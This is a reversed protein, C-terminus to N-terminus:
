CTTGLGLTVLNDNSVVQVLETWDVEKYLIKQIDIRIIDEWLRKSNQWLTELYFASHMEQKQVYAVRVYGECEELTDHGPCTALTPSVLFACFIKTTFIIPFCECVFLNIDTISIYLIIHSSSMITSLVPKPSPSSFRWHRIVCHYNAVYNTLWDALWEIFFLYSSPVSESKEEVGHQKGERLSL